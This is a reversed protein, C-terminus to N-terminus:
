IKQEFSINAKISISENNSVFDTDTSDDMTNDIGDYWEFYVRITFPKAENNKQYNFTGSIQNDVIDLYNINELDTEEDIITYRSIILDPMDENELINLKYNFSVEVTTPDIEIDFYGKSSPALKNSAVNENEIITPTIDIESSEKSTIDSNNVLIQWKAFVMEVDGTTDAIYRSYTNSMVSLSFGILAFVVLIKVKLKM